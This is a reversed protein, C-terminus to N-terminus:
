YTSFHATKRSDDRRTSDDRVVSASLTLVRHILSVPFWRHALIDGFGEGRDSRGYFTSHDLAM